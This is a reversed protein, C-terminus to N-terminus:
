NKIIEMGTKYSRNGIAFFMRERYEEDIFAMSFDSVIDLYQTMAEDYLDYFSKDSLKQTFPNLWIQHQDNCADNNGCFLDNYLLPTAFQFGYMKKEINKGLTGKYGRSDKMVKLVIEIEKLIAECQYVSLHVGRLARTACYSLQEAVYQTETKNLSVIFSADYDSPRKNDFKKLVQLDIDSELAFHRGTCLKDDDSGAISYVYPHVNCDLCYHALFGAAYATQIQSVVKRQTNETESESIKWADLAKKALLRLFMGTNEEHLRSGYNNDKSSYSGLHYFFLDPGQCGLAFVHPHNKVSKKIYNGSMKKYGYLGFRYHSFFAPMCYSGKRFSNEGVSM